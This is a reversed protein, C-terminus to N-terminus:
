IKYAGNMLDAMVEAQILDCFDDEKTGVLLIDGVFPVGCVSTNYKKGKLRGEDDCIVAANGYTVTEIYGGVAQQMAELTNEIEVVKWPKDVEKKLIRM